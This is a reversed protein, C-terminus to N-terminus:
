EVQFVDIARNAADEPGITIGLHAMLNDGVRNQHNAAHDIPAAAFLRVQDDVFEDREVLEARSVGGADNCPDVLALMGGISQLFNSFHDAGRRAVTFQLERDDEFVAAAYKELRM